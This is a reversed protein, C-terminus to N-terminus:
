QQMSPPRSSEPVPPRRELLEVAAARVVQPVDTAAIVQRLEPRTLLRMWLVSIHKPTYPNQVMALRVRVRASWDPHRAIETVVEAYNPRRAALRVVDDETLRRNDLLNRIVAPHPDRLLRDIAFRDPRRAAAKREGLTLTRGGPATLLVTEDVPVPAGPENPPPRLLRALSLLSGRAAAGRLEELRGALDPDSLTPMASALVERGPSQAQEALWCVDDLAHAVEALPEQLIESRMFRARLTTTALAPVCGLWRDALLRRTM